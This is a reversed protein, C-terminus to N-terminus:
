GVGGACSLTYITYQGPPPDCRILFQAPGARERQVGRTRSRSRHRNCTRKRGKIGWKLERVM